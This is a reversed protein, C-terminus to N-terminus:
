LFNPGLVLLAGFIIGFLAEVISLRKKKLVNSYAVWLALLSILFFCVLIWQPILSKTFGFWCFLAEESATHGFVALNFNSAKHNLAVFVGCLMLMVSVAVPLFQSYYQPTFWVRPDLAIHTPKAFYIAFALGTLIAVYSAIKLKKQLIM